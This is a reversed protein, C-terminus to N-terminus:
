SINKKKEFPRPMAPDIRTEIKSLRLNSYAHLWTPIEQSARNQRGSASSSIQFFRQAPASFRICFSFAKIIELLLRM